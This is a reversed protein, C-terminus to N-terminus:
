SIPLNLKEISDRTKKPIEVEIWEKSIKVRRYRSLYLVVDQPSYKRLLGKELLLHYIKYYYVLALYNIFMWWEMAYSSRMYSRNAMLINKLKDFLIEIQVRSKFYKYVEEATLNRKNTLLAITEFRTM